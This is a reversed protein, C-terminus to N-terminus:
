SAVQEGVKRAAAKTDGEDEADGTVNLLRIKRHLASREM